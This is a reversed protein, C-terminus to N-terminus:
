NLDELHKIVKDRTKKSKIGSVYDLAGEPNLRYDEELEQPTNYKKSM